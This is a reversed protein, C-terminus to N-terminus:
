GEFMTKGGSRQIFASFVFESVDSYKGVWGALFSGTDFHDEATPDGFHRVPEAADHTILAEGLTASNNLNSFNTYLRDGDIQLLRTSNSFVGM